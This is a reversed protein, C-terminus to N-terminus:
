GTHDLMPHCPLSRPAQNPIGSKTPKSPTLHSVRLPSLEASFAFPARKEGGRETHTHTHTPHRTTHTYTVGTVRPPTAPVCVPEARAGRRERVRKRHGTNTGRGISCYHVASREGRCLVPRSPPPSLKWRASNTNPRPTRELGSYISDSRHSTYRSALPSISQDFHPSRFRLREELM